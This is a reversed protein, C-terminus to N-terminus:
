IRDPAPAAMTGAVAAGCLAEGRDEQKNLNKTFKRFGHCGAWVWAIISAIRFYQSLRPIQRPIDGAARM